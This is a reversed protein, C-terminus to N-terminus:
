ELASYDAVIEIKGAELDECIKAVKESLEDPVHLIPLYTSRPKGSGYVGYALKISGGLKGEEVEKLLGLIQETPKFLTSTVWYPSDPFVSYSTTVRIDDANAAEAAAQVVGTGALDLEGIVFDVGQALVTETAQKGKVPDNFDGTMLYILEIDEVGADVFSKKITRISAWVYPLPLAGIYAVKKTKTWLAATYGLPYVAEAHNRDLYKVNNKAAAADNPGDGEVIFSVNPYQDALTDVITSTFQAGHAWIVSFGSSAYEDIIRALDAVEVRESYSMEWNDLAGAAEAAEFGSTNWGGDKTTGAFLVAFKYIIPEVVPETTPEATQVEPPATEVVTPPEETVTPKEAPACSAIFVAVLVLTIFFRFGNKTAM